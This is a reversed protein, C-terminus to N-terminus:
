DAMVHWGAYRWTGKQGYRFAYGNRKTNYTFEPDFVLTVGDIDIEVWSHPGMGGTRTPVFGDMQRAPYGLARAMECFVAAMVYCNGKRNTFGYWAFWKTGPAGVDPLDPKGHGYYPLATSSWTFAAPLNWGIQDLVAAAQEYQDRSPAATTGAAQQAAIQAQRLAEQEQAIRLAEQEQAIRLAEQAQAIRLAEQEQAIRIADQEQAIRIAEQEQAVRLAEQAQAIRLAEPNQLAPVTTDDATAIRGENKGFMIYHQYYRPLDAGFALQLDPYRSAYAYVDFEESTQPNVSANVTLPNGSFATVAVATGMIMAALRRPYHKAPNM